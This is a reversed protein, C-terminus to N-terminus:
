KAIKKQKKRTIQVKPLHEYIKYSLFQIKDGYNFPQKADLDNEVRATIVMGDVKKIKTWFIEHQSNVKVLDGTKYHSPPNILDNEGLKFLKTTQKPM